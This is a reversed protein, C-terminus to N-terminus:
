IVLEKAHEDKHFMGNTRTESIFRYAGLPGILNWRASRQHKAILDATSGSANSVMTARLRKGAELEEEFLECANTLMELAHFHM